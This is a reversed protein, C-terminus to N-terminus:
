IYIQRIGKKIEDTTDGKLEVLMFLKRDLGEKSYLILLDCVAGKETPYKEEKFKIIENKTICNDNDIEFFLIREGSKPNLSIKKGEESHNSEHKLGNIILDNFPM